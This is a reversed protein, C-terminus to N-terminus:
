LGGSPDATLLGGGGATGLFGVPSNFADAEAVALALRACLTTSFPAAM